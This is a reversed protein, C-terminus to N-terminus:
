GGKREGSECALGERSLFEVLAERWGAMAKGRLAALGSGDMASNAPRPAPRPFEASTCPEIPVHCGAIQCTAVAFDYWSCVGAASGHFIGEGGAGVVDWLAPALALTSTPAGVQDDVVKLNDREAALRLITGPFHNGRPGYLWQTRVICLGDGLAARARREGELKTRGYAGIPCPEDDPQYPSGKLGDFVFDTSVLLMRTGVAACAQAVVEAAGANVKLALEEEEEAKDVATYAAAHIVWAFPGQGEFLSDVAARDTLDVGVAQVAPGDGTADVLDTGVAVIGAPADLLLQSGLMGAAGTVLVRTVGEADSM